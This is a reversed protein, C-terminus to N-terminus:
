KLLGRYKRLMRLEAFSGSAIVRKLVSLWDGLGYDWPKPSLEFHLISIKTLSLGMKNYPGVCDQFVNYTEDLHLATDQKWEPYLLKFVDQDGFGVYPELADEDMGRMIEIAKDYVPMSPVLVMLGSNLDVWEEHMGKGAVVASMHPCDFLLDVNRLIMMDADLLIIKEFQNMRLINLKSFTSNWRACGDRQNKEFILPPPALTDVEVVQIGENEMLTEARISCESCFATLPYSSDVLDISRKLAIVGPLYSDGILFVGFTRSRM